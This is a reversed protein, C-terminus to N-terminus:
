TSYERKNKLAFFKREALSVLYKQLFMIRRLKGVIRNALAFANLGAKALISLNSTACLFCRGYVKKQHARRFSHWFRFLMDYVCNDVVRFASQVDTVSFNYDATSNPEIRHSNSNRYTLKAFRTATKNKLVMCFHAAFKFRSNDLAAM